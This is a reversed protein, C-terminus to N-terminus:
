TAEKDVNKILINAKEDYKQEGKQIQHSLRIAQGELIQNNM